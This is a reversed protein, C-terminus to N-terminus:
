NRSKQKKEQWIVHNMKRRITQEYDQASLSYVLTNKQELNTEKKFGFRLCFGKPGLNGSSFEAKVKMVNLEKFATKIAVLATRTIVPHRRVRPHSMGHLYAQDNIIIDNLSVGTLCTGVENRAIWLYPVTSKLNELMEKLVEDCVEKNEHNKFNESSFDYMILSAFRRILRSLPERVTEFYEDTQIREINLIM